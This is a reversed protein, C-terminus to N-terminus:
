LAEWYLMNGPRNQVAEGAKGQHLSTSEGQVPVVEITTGEKLQSLAPTFCSQLECFIIPPKVFFSIHKDQIKTHLYTASKYQPINSVEAREPM